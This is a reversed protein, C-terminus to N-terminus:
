SFHPPPPPAAPTMKLLTSDRTMRAL